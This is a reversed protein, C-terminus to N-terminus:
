GAAYAIKEHKFYSAVRTPNDQLMTMFNNTNVALEEKNIPIHKNNMNRKFDNNLYEDPNLDLCSLVRKSVQKNEQASNAYWAFVRVLFQNDYKLEVLSLYGFVTM